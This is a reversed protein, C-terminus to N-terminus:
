SNTEPLNNWWINRFSPKPTQVPSGFIHIRLPQSPFLCIVLMVNIKSIFRWVFPFSSVTEQSTDVSVGSNMQSIRWVQISPSPDVPALHQGTLDDVHKKKWFLINHTHKYRRLFHSTWFGDGWIEHCMKQFVVVWSPAGMIRTTWYPDKNWAFIVIGVYSPLIILGRYVRLCDPNTWQECPMEMKKFFCWSVM